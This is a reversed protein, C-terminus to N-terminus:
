PLTIRKWWRNDSVGDAPFFHYSGDNDPDLFEFYEVRGVYFNWVFFQDGRHAPQVDGAAVAAGQKLKADWENMRMRFATGCVTPPQTGTFQWSASDQENMPFPGYASRADLGTLRFDESAAVAPNQFSYVSGMLGRVGDEPAGTASDDGWTHTACRGTLTEVVFDYSAAGLLQHFYGSPHVDDFFLRNPFQQADCGPLYVASVLVNRDPSSQVQDLLESVPQVCATKFDVKQVYSQQKVFNWLPSMDFRMLTVGPPVVLADIGANFAQTMQTARARVQANPELRYRPLEAFDFLKYVLLRRAGHGILTNIAQQIQGIATPVSTLDNPDKIASILDNAGILLVHLALPDGPQGRRHDVWAQVEDSLSFFLQPGARAGALAYNEGVRSLHLWPVSWGYAPRLPPQGLLHTMVDVAVPGSSIYRGAYFGAGLRVSDRKTGCLARGLFDDRCLQDIADIGAGDDSLSDGFVYVHSIDTPVAPQQGHAVGALLLTGAFLLACARLAPNKM